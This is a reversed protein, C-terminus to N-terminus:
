KQAAAISLVAIFQCTIGSAEFDQPTTDQFSATFTIGASNILVDVPPLGSLGIELEEQLEESCVDASITNM